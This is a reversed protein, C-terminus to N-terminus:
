LDSKFGSPSLRHDTKNFSSSNLAIKSLSRSEKEAINNLPEIVIPKDITNLQPADTLEQYLEEDTEFSELNYKHIVKPIQQV